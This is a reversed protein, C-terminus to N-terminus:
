SDNGHAEVQGACRNEVQEQQEGGCTNDLPQPADVGPYRERYNAWNERYFQEGASTLRVWWRHINEGTSALYREFTEYEEVLPLPKGQMQYDRLRLWTNWGIHGYVGSEGPLGAPRAAWALALAKWHWERLTGAPLAKERSKGTAARVLRRGAPTIQVYTQTEGRAVPRYKLLIYKREALATFTSGTGEDVLRAARLRARLPSDLNLEPIVGYYMWRWEVAPRPREGRSWRRKERAENEQDQEFIQQLYAQQRENLDDWLETM